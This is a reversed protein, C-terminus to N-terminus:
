RGFTRLVIHDQPTSGAAWVSLRQMTTADYWGAILTYPGPSLEPPLTLEYRDAVIEGPLWSTTPAKGHLPIHDEQAIVTNAGDLLQVFGTYSREAAGVAEWVLTVALQANPALEGEVTYGLLLALEGARPPPVMPHGMPPPEFTRARGRVRLRGLEVNGLVEDRELLTLRVTYTGAPVEAPLRWPLRSHVLEGPQWSSVRYNWPVPPSKWAAFEGGGEAVLRIEVWYPPRAASAGRMWLLEVTVEEGPAAEARDLAFEVLGIPADVLARPTVNPFAPARAVDVTALVVDGGNVVKVQGSPDVSSREGPAYVRATVTYKGPPTGPPLELLYVNTAREGEAWSPLTLHRDSILPRDDQSVVRGLPDLLRVSAKLPVTTPEPGREWTLVAWIPRPRDPPPFIAPVPAQGVSANVLSVVSGFHATLSVTTGEEALTYRTNPAVRYWTVTYGRFARTGAVVGYKRLLFDVAGRPDTDSKYWQVWFIRKANAGLQTLREAVHSIDVFLYYAPAQACSNDPPPRTPDRSYRPYYFGLPYPVDILVLDEPGAVEALWQVLRTTEERFYRPNFQDAHIGLAWVAVLTAGLVFALPRAIRCWGHLAAGVLLAFFPMVFSIYRPAFTGRDLLVLYYLGVPVLTTTLLFSLPALRAKPTRIIALCLGVGVVGGVLAIGWLAWTGEAAVGVTYAWWLQRLYEGSAPVTLNPNGYPTAQRLARGLQPSFLLLALLAAWALSRLRRGLEERRLGWAAALALAAWTYWSAVVFLTAYHVLAAAAMSVGLWAWARGHGHVARWFHTAGWALLAFALTYMRTEQAESVLFPALAAFLAAGPALEPTELRRALAVTLPVLLVGWIVSFFRATFAAVGAQLSWAHLLLFYGPPHIDLEPAGPIASLPRTAVDINRAEDWWIDQVELRWLRLAFSLAVLM